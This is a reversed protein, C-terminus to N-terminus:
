SVLIQVVLISFGKVCWFFTCLFVTIIAKSAFLIVNNNKREFKLVSHLKFMLFLLLLLYSRITPLLNYHFFLCSLYNYYTYGVKFMIFVIWQIAIHRPYGPKKMHWPTYEKAYSFVLIILQTAMNSSKKKLTSQVFGLSFYEKILYQFIFGAGWTLINM